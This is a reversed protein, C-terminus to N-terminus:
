QTSDHKQSWKKHIDLRDIARYVTQISVSSAKALQKCVEYEPKYNFVQDEVITLKILAEGYPTEVTMFERELVLKTVAYKRLGITTSETLLLNTLHAEKEENTLINLKTALRGKKMIIPTKYFDLAGEEFLKEELYGFWEPNMDDINAEIMINNETKGITKQSGMGEALYVRLLNPIQFDKTGLGYGTKLIKFNTHDSFESVVAKLIAAGTPTTAESDVGGMHVPTDGLIETTAPAPVPMVGHACKVFGKGLEVTSSLIKDVELYDICIAAGIIDVISDVAGVEHFHVEHIAKGHVKAEARAVQYFIKKSLAKITESLDSEDIIDHVDELNRHHHHHGHGHDHDHHHHHDHTLIVDVKTGTIGMKQDKRISVRFEDRIALKNLEAILYAEDVGLDVLAGLHMDGSIGAFCDYYLIRM